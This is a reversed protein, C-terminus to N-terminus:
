PCYIVELGDSAQLNGGFGPDRVVYQFYRTYGVQSPQIPVSVSAQGNGDTTTVTRTFAPGGVLLTGWPKQVSKKSAGSLLFAFSNPNGGTLTVAFGGGPAPLGSWGIKAQTGKSGVEGTGYTSAGCSPPATVQVRIEYSGTKRYSHVTDVRALYVGSVPAQIGAIRANRGTGSNDDQAIQLGQPDYLTLRPDCYTGADSVGGPYRTEVTFTTGALVPIAFWDQDGDGPVPPNQTSFYLTLTPSWGSDPALTTAQAQQGNPEFGDAHFRMKWADFVAEMQPHLGYNTPVFSGNWHDRITLNGATKVPGTFVLWQQRDGDLGGNFTASGDLPDDDTSDGDNTAATDVIDWLVCFVAGEDAEGSTASAYPFGNEFRMRLQISGPGTQGQGQCDMYFGPDFIGQFQRVAGGFFSAWGEGYSLRPDQDSQGFGHSGGPSDSDSYVNHIVHGIEHLIVMDDYGDDSAMNATAGSAYSASAPWRVTLTTSPNPAGQAKVYEVAAVLQDLINFPSGQDSGSFVKQAVVTGFDLDQTLDHNPFVASSVSYLTGSTTTVRLRNNGFADSRSYCRVVLDRQGSGALAISVQGNQGTQGTALVQGTQDDIVEVRALRIPLETETASFGGNFTFPRDVYRFRGTVTGASGVPAAALALLAAAAAVGASRASGRM